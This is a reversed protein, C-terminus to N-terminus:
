FNKSNEVVSAASIEGSVGLVEMVPCTLLHVIQMVSNGHGGPVRPQLHHVHRHHRRRGRRRRLLRRDRRPAQLQVAQGGEGRGRGFPLGLTPFPWM